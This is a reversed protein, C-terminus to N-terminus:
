PSSLMALHNRLTKLYQKTDDDFEPLDPPPLGPDPLISFVRGDMLPVSVTPIDERSVASILLPSGSTSFAVEGHQPRRMVSVPTNSVKPTITKILSMQQRHTNLPTRYQSPPPPASHTPVSLSRKRSSRRPATSKPKKFESPERNKMRSQRAGRTNPDQNQDQFMNEEHRAMLNMSLYNEPLSKLLDAFTKKVDIVCYEYIKARKNIKKEVHAEIAEQCQSVSNYEKSILDSLDDAQDGTSSVTSALSATSALSEVSASTQRKLTKRKVKMSSKRKIMKTRPM